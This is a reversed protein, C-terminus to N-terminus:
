CPLFFFFFFFSPPFSLVIWPWSHPSPTQTWSWRGEWDKEWRSLQGRIQVITGWAGLKYVTPIYKMHRQKSYFSGSCLLPMALPTGLRLPWLVKDGEGPDSQVRVGPLAHERQEDVIRL